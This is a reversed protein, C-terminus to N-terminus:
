YEPNYKLFKYEITEKMNDKIEKFIRNFFIYIIELYAITRENHLNYILCFHKITIKYKKDM